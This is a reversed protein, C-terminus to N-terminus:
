SKKPQYHRLDATEKSWAPNKHMGWKLRETLLCENRVYANAQPISLGLKKTREEFEIAYMAQCYEACSSAICVAKLAKEPLWEHDRWFASNADDEILILESLTMMKASPLKEPTLDAGIFYRRVWPQKRQEKLESTSVILSEIQYLSKVQEEKLEILNLRRSYEKGFVDEISKSRYVLESTMIDNITAFEAQVELNQQKRKQEKLIDTVASNVDIGSNKLIQIAEPGMKEFIENKRREVDDM